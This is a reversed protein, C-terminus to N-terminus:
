GQMEELAMLAKARKNSGGNRVEKALMALAKDFGMVGDTLKNAAAQEGIFVKAELKRVTEGRIGRGKAVADVFHGFLADVHEQVYDVHEQTVPQSPDGVGKFKGTVIPTVKIGASEFAKSADVLATVVGISGVAATDNSYIARANAATWYAASCGCDEIYAMVPKVANAAKVEAALDGTGAVSGGPSDILLMIGGIHPDAAAQRVTASLEAQDAYGWSGYGKFMPGFVGIVAIGGPTVAFGANIALKLLGNEALVRRVRPEHQAAPKLFRLSNLFGHFRAPEMLMPVNLIEAVKDM